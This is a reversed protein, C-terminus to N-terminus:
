DNDVIEKADCMSCKDSDAYCRAIMPHGCESLYNSCVFDAHHYQRDNKDYNWLVSAHKDDYTSYDRAIDKHKLFWNLVDNRNALGKMNKRLESNYVIADKTNSSIRELWEESVFIPQIKFDVGEPIKLEVDHMLADTLTASCVVTYGADQVKKINKCWRFYDDNFFRGNTDYSTCIQVEKGLMDCFDLLFDVDGLLHTGIFFRKIHDANRITDAVCIWEHFLNEADNPFLEGGIIGVTDCKKSEDSLFTSLRMLSKRKDELSM